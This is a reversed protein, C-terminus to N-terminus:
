RGHHDIECVVLVVQRFIMKESFNSDSLNFNSILANGPSIDLTLEFAFGQEILANAQQSGTPQGM